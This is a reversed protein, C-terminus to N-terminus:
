ASFSFCKALDVLKLVKYIDVNVGRLVIKVTKDGALQAFSKLACVAIPDMRNVSSFDLTLETDATELRECAEDLSEAVRKEDVRITAAMTM